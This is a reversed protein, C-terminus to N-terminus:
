SIKMKVARNLLRVIKHGYSAEDEGAAKLDAYKKTDYGPVAWKGSLQEFTPACGKSVYKYRPDM